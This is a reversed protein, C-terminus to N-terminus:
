ENINISNIKDLVNQYAIIKGIDVNIHDNIQESEGKREKKEIKINDILKKEIDDSFMNLKQILEITDQMGEIIGDSRAKDLRCKEICDKQTKIETEIFEKFSYLSFGDMIPQAIPINDQPQTM